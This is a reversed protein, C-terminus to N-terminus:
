TSVITRWICYKSTVVDSELFGNHGFETLGEESFNVSGKKKTERAEDM